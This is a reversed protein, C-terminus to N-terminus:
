LVAERMYEAFLPTFRKKIYNYDQEASDFLIEDVSILGSSLNWYCLQKNHQIVM